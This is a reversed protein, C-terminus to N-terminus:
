WTLPTSNRGDLTYTHAHTFIYECYITIPLDNRLGNKNPNSFIVQKFLKKFSQKMPSWSDQLKRLIISGLTPISWHKPNGTVVHRRHKQIATVEKCTEGPVFLGPLDDGLKGRFGAATDSLQPKTSIWFTFVLNLNPVVDKQQDESGWYGGLCRVLFRSIGVPPQGFHLRLCPVCTRSKLYWSPISVEWLTESKNWQEHSSWTTEPFM